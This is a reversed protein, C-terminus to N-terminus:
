YSHWPVEPLDFINSIDTQGSGSKLAESVLIIRFNLRQIFVSGMYADKCINWGTTSTRSRVGHIDVEILRTRTKM